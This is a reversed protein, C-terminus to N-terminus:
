PVLVGHGALKAVPALVLWLLVWGSGPRSAGAMCREIALTDAAGHCAATGPLEPWARRTLPALVGQSDLKALPLLALRLLVAAGVCPVGMTSSDLDPSDAAAHDAEAGILEPCARRVPPVLVGQSALKAVPLLALRLLVAAGCCPAGMSWDGCYLKELVACHLEVASALMARAAYAPAHSPGFVTGILVHAPRQASGHRM